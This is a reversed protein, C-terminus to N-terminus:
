APSKDKLVMGVVLGTAAYALATKFPTTKAAAESSFPALFANKITEM